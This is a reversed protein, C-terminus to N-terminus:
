AQPPARTDYHYFLNFYVINQIFSIDEAAKNYIPENLTLVEPIDASALEVATQCFVCGHEFIVDDAAHIHAAVIVQAVLLCIIPLIKLWRKIM